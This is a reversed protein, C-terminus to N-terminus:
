QDDSKFRSELLAAVAVGVLAGLTDVAWDAPDPMRQPVFSQHFEDTIGYASSLAVAWVLARLLPAHLRLAWYTLVGLVAYEAFHAQSGWQGPIASGPISSMSFIISAWVIVASWRLAM